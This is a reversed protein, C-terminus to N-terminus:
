RRQKNQLDSGQLEQFESLFLVMMMMLSSEGRMQFDFIYIASKPFTKNKTLPGFNTKLKSSTRLDSAKKGTHRCISATMTDHKWLLAVLM